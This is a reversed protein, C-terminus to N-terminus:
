KAQCYVLEAEKLKKKIRLLTLLYKKDHKLFINKLRRQQITAQLTPPFTTIAEQVIV